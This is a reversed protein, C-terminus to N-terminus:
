AQDLSTNANANFRRPQFPTQGSHSPLTEDRKQAPSHTLVHAYPPFRQSSLPLLLLPYHARLVRLHPASAVCAAAVIMGAHPSEVRVTETRPSEVRLAHVYGRRTRNLGRLRSKAAVARACTRRHHPPHPPHVPPRQCRPITPVHLLSIPVFSPDHFTIHHWFFFFTSLYATKVWGAPSVNGMRAPLALEQSSRDGGRTSQEIRSEDHENGAEAAKFARLLRVPTAARLMLCSPSPHFPGEGKLGLAFNLSVSAPAGCYGNDGNVHQSNTPLASLSVARSSSGLLILTATVATAGTPSLPSSSSAFSNPLVPKLQARLLAANTKAHSTM